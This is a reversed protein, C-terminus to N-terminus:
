YCLTGSNILKDINMFWNAASQFTFDGGMTVMINDHDYYKAQREIQAIFDNVRSDANYVHSDPDDVIPEDSCLFDFCFGDPANYLNFLNHTMIDSMKGIFLGDYGMQALLSAQERTHGYTDVQWAAKPKGCPGLTDNLKGAKRCWRESRPALLRDSNRGGAGSTYRRLSRLDSPISVSM